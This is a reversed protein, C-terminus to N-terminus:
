VIAVVLGSMFLIQLITGTNSRLPLHTPRSKQCGPNRSIQLVKKALYMSYELAHLSTVNSLPGLKGASRPAASGKNIAQASSFSHSFYRLRIGEVKTSLPTAKIRLQGITNTPYLCRCDNVGLKSKRMEPQTSDTPLGPVDCPFLDSLEGGDTTAMEM